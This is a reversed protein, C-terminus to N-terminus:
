SLAVFAFGGDCLSSDSAITADTTGAEYYKIVHAGATVRGQSNVTVACYTGAAVGTASLKADTVAADAIKATTVKGNGISTTIATAGSGTVDGSLTITQNGTLYTNTDITFGSSTRKVFGNTSFNTWAAQGSTSSGILFQTASGGSPVHKNGATTPHTYKYTVNNTNDTVGDTASVTISTNNVNGLGVDGKALASGLVVHGYKDMGVKVAAATAVTKSDDHKYTITGKNTGATYDVKLQDGAAFDITSSSDTLKNTGGVQIPRWTNSDIETHVVDWAAEATKTGGNYIVIDGTHLTTGNFSIATSGSYRAWDGAEGPNLALIAAKTSCAGLYTVGSSILSDIKDKTYTTVDTGNNGIKGGSQSVGGKITIVGTSANATAITASGDTFAAQKGEALTYASAAKDYATKVANATAAETTSTSNVADKLKVAGKQGTTADAIGVTYTASTTTVNESVSIASDTAAKVTVNPALSGTFGITIGGVTPTISINNGAVLPLAQDLTQQVDAGLGNIANNTNLVVSAETEPHILDVGTSTKHKIQNKVTAM